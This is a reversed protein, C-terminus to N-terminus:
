PAPTAEALDPAHGNAPAPGERTPPTPVVDTLDHREDPDGALWTAAAPTMTAVHALPDAAYRTARAALGLMQRRTMLFVGFGLAPALARTGRRGRTPSVYSARVREILRTRGGELPELVIAWSVAFEPPMSAQMFRGSAALGPTAAADIRARDTRRAAIENNVLLVLAREPEIVKVEFGGNPDTPVIDGVALTQHEPLISDASRGKMDMRDYSYWGGRGFGLQLL